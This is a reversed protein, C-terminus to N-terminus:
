CMVFQYLQQTLCVLSPLKVPSSNVLRNVLL